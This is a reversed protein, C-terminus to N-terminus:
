KKSIGKKLVEAIHPRVVSALQKRIAEESFDHELRGNKLLIRFGNDINKDPVVKIGGAAKEKFREMMFNALEQAQSPKVLVKVDEDNKCYAEVAKVLMEKLADTSLATSVADGLMGELIATLSTNISLIIDRAAQGLSQKGKEAFGDAEKQAKELLAKVDNEAKKRIEDAEQKANDTIKKSEAEAKEVGERQIKDLLNQLEEAMAIRM